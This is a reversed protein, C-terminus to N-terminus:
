QQKKDEEPQQTNDVEPQTQKEVEPQPQKEVEPQPQKEVEPQPQKEVRGSARTEAIQSRKGSTIGFVFHYAVALVIFLSPVAIGLVIILFNSGIQIAAANTWPSENGAGDIANVRWSYHGKKLSEQATLTYTNTTLNRKTLIINRFLEDSAISLNYFVGSPDDVASWSFTPTQNGQNGIRTGSLPSIIVPIPPPTSEMTWTVAENNTGDSIIVEHAGSWGAPITFIGTFSGSSDSVAITESVEASDWFLEINTNPKFGTGSINLQMGIYGTDPEFVTTPKVTFASAASPSAIIEGRLNRATVQYLANPLQPVSGSFNFSGDKDCRVTTLYLDGFFISIDNEESLFGRGQITFSAGIQGSTEGVLSVDPEVFFMTEAVASNDQSDAAKIIKEGGPMELVKFSDRFSGSSDTNASYSWTAEGLSIYVLSDASFGYGEVSILTGITGRQPGPSQLVPFVNFRVDHPSANELRDKAVVYSIGAPSEPVTFSASINGSDSSITSSVFSNRFYISVNESYNFGHGQVDVITGVTGSDPSISISGPLIQFKVTDTANSVTASITKYGPSYGSPV